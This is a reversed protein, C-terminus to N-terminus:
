YPRYRRRKRKNNKTPKGQQITIEKLQQEINFVDYDIDYEGIVEIQVMQRSTTFSFFYFLCVTLKKYCM